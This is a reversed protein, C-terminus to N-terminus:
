SSALNRIIELMVGLADAAPYRFLTATQDTAIRPLRRVVLTLSPDSAALYTCL